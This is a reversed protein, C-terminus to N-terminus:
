AVRAFKGFYKASAETYAAHAEEASAYSGLYISKYNVMITSFWNQDRRSWSVGKYGSKNNKRKPSNSHNEQNTASRLNEWKNNTRVADIHDIQDVPWAGSMYLWALRHAKYTKGDLTIRVYGRDTLSGAVSGYIVGRKSMRWTFFGTDPDYHLANKLDKQTLDDM